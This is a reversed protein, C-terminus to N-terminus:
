RGATTPAPSVRTSKRGPRATGRRQDLDPRHRAARRLHVPQAARAGLDGPVQRPGNRYFPNDDPISGDPNLRLLKGQLTTLAQAPAGATQDGLAVYLKGDKGFHIAGGQHGAPM